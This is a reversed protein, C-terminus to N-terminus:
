GFVEGDPLFEVRLNLPGPNDQGGTKSGHERFTASDHDDLVVRSHTKCDFAKAMRRVKRGRAEGRGLVIQFGAVKGTSGSQNEIDLQRSHRAELEVIPKFLLIVPNGCDEDGATVVVAKPLEGQARTGQRQKVFWELARIQEFKDPAKEVLGSLVKGGGNGIVGVIFVVLVCLLISRASPSAM